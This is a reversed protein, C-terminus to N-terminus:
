FEDRIAFRAQVAFGPQEGPGALRVVTGRSTLSLGMTAPDEVPPLQVELLVEDGVTFMSSTLVFVGGESIDRTKATFEEEVAGVQRHVTM